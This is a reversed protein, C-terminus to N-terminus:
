DQSFLKSTFYLNKLYLVKPFIRGNKKEKESLVINFLIFENGYSKTVYICVSLFSYPFFIPGGASKNRDAQQPSSILQRREVANLSNIRM